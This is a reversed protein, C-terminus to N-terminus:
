ESAEEDLSDTDDGRDDDSPIDLPIEDPLEAASERVDLKGTVVDAVLRTRYEQVLAIEREARDINTDIPACEDAIFDIIMSQESLSPYWMLCNALAERNVKPMAVRMSADVAFKTFPHSLLLLLLYAPTLEGTIPAIPYMDASCLCDCPAITAKRLNPRIKSYVVQGARVLYKGSDAGQETATEQHLLRGNGSQVHNPAILVLDRYEPKRPDVQGSNICALFKFRKLSWHAPINGLWPVGTAKLSVNPDLGRTVARHIIAQKQENHLAIVRRKARIARELRGNAWAVFRVIAAQDTTPPLAVPIPGFRDTYLRNFGSGIGKSELAFQGVLDPSKLRQMVFQVLNGRLVDFVAYDPSVLGELAGAGFMGSWAQMRNMVIQGRRYCKYGVLTKASHMRDTMDRHPILGRTRTLSLLTGEGDRSRLDAERLFTKIRHVDWHAPIEGLWPIGSNKYEVYPKLNAIM